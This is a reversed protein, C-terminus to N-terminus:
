ESINKLLLNVQRRSCDLIKTFYDLDIDKTHTNPDEWLADEIRNAIEYTNRKIRPSVYNSEALEDIISSVYGILDEEIWRFQLEDIQEMDLTKALRLVQFM